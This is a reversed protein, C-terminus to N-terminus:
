RRGGGDHDDDGRAWLDAAAPRGASADKAMRALDRPVDQGVARIAAEIEPAMEDDVGPVMFTVAVGRRGARGTRGIRHKYRDIASPADYNVVLVVGEVDIGRGAVETAVLVDYTGERFGRLSSEREDQARGAHFVCARAGRQRLVRGVQDCTDKSNCFVIVPGRPAVRLARDLEREKVALANSALVVVRQEIDKNNGSEEEGVRISLPSTMFQRAIREVAPPMTASFMMTVREARPVVLGELVKNVQPEFGLDIMRDAEDLVVRACQNLV